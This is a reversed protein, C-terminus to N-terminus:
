QQDDYHFIAFGERPRKPDLSTFHVIIAHSFRTERVEYRAPLIGSSGRVGSRKLPGPIRPTTWFILDKEADVKPESISVSKADDAADRRIEFGCHLFSLDSYIGPIVARGNVQILPISVTHFANPSENDTSEGTWCSRRELFWRLDPAHGAKFDAAVDDLLAHSAALSSFGACLLFVLILHRTHRSWWM